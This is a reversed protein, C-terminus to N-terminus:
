LETARHHSGARFASIKELYTKFYNRNRLRLDDSTVRRAAPSCTYTHWAQASAPAYCATTELFSPHYCRKRVESVLAHPPLNAHEMLLFACLALVWAPTKELTDQYRKYQLIAYYFALEKRLPMDALLNIVFLRARHDNTNTAEHLYGYFESADADHDASEIRARKNRAQPAPTNEYIPQAVLELTELAKLAPQESGALSLLAEFASSEKESQDTATLTNASFSSCALIALLLNRQLLKM